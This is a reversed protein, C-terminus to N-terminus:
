PLIEPFPPPPDAVTAAQICFRDLDAATFVDLANWPHSVQFLARQGIAIGSWAAEQEDAVVVWYTSFPVGPAIQLPQGSADLSTYITSM